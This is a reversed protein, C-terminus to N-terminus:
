PSEAARTSDYDPVLHLPRDDIRLKGFVTEGISYDTVTAEFEPKSLGLEYGVGDRDIVILCRAKQYHAMAARMLPSVWSLVQARDIKKSSLFVYVWDPRSDMYVADIAFGRESNRMKDVVLDFAVGLESRERLRFSALLRLIELYNRRKEPPDFAAVLEPSLGAEYNPLRTALEHAVHEM